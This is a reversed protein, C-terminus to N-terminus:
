YELRGVAHGRGDVLDCDSVHERVEGGEETEWGCGPCHWVIEPPPTIRLIRGPLSGGGVENPFRDGGYVRIRLAEAQAQADAMSTAEVEFECEETREIVVTFTGM